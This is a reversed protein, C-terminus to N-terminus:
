GYEAGDMRDNRDDSDNKCNCSKDLGAFNM